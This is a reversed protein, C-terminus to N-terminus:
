THIYLSCKGKSQALEDQGTFYIRARNMGKDEDTDQNKLKYIKERTKPIKKM